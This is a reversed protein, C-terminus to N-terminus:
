FLLIYAINKKIGTEILLNSYAEEKETFYTVNKQRM